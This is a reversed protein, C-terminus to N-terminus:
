FLFQKWYDANRNPHHEDKICNSFEEKSQPTKPDDVYKHLYHAQGMKGDVFVSIAQCPYDYLIQCIEIFEERTFDKYPTCCIEYVREIELIPVRALLYSIIGCIRIIRITNKDLKSKSEDFIDTKGGM